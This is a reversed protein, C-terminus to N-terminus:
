QSEQISIGESIFQVASVKSFSQQRSLHLQTEAKGPATDLHSESHPGLFRFIVVTGHNCKLAFYDMSKVNKSRNQQATRDGKRWAQLDETGVSETLKDYSEKSEILLKRARKLKRVLSTALNFFIDSNISLVASSINVCGL